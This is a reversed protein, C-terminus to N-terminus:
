QNLQTAKQLNKDRTRYAAVTHTSKTFKQFISSAALHLFMGSQLVLFHHFSSSSCSLFLLPYLESGKPIM